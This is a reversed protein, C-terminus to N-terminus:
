QKRHVSGLSNLADRRIEEITQRRRKDIMDLIEAQKFYLRKNVKYHPIERRHVLGYITPVSLHLYKAVQKITFVENAGKEEEKLQYYKNEIYILKREIFNLKEIIIEFPNEM